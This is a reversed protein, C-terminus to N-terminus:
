DKLNFKIIVRQEKMCDNVKCFDEGANAKKGQALFSRGTVKVLSMLRQQNRYQMKDTNFIYGFIAKARNYSLDLNYNVASRNSADLSSPDVYKGKYTPSAFGIIEVSGIKSATKENEFLGETYVPVFKQLTEIMDKKLVAKGTDFYSNKFDLVVEGTKDDVDVKIGSKAFRNRIQDALKKRTNIQDIAKKLEGQTDDYKQKLAALRGQYEKEKGAMEDRFAKERAAREAGSLREKNLTDDFGAKAKALEGKFKGEADSLAKQYQGQTAALKSELEGKAAAADALAQNTAALDSQAKALNGKAAALNGQTAELDSKTNQLQAQLQNQIAQAQGQLQAVQAASEAKLNQIRKDMEQKTMQNTQYAQQLEVMKNQLNQNVQNIQHEKNALETRKATVDADLSAIESSQQDIVNEKESIIDNRHQIKTKALVNSNIINRILQQYKNLAKEKRENELAKQRLAEKETKSEEQLLDLKGMLEDYMETEENSAEKKMYDDKLAEYVKIQQKLDEIQHTLYKKDQVQELTKTGQRLTSGVYIFLFITFLTTYLDAYSTWFNESHKNKDHQYNFSM